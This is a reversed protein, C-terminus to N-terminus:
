ALGLQPAGDRWVQRVRPMGASADVAALDAAFGEGIEGRDDFGALRAPGRTVLNMADAWSASGDRILAYAAHLMSAPHYDSVMADVIGARIATRASLWALHSRGQWANPAGVVVGLGLRRAQAAAELTMPFESISAGVGAAAIVDAPTCDDHSALAIGAARAADAIRRRAATIDRARASRESALREREAPSGRHSCLYLEQWAASDHAYQGVGPAHVMYSVVRTSRSDLLHRPPEPLRASLEFRVHLYSDTRLVAQHELLARLWEVPHTADGWRTRDEDVTVCICRTTVGHSIAETDDQLLAADFPFRTGPRPRRRRDLGDCHLDVVGPILDLSRIDIVTGSRPGHRSVEVVVGDRITVFPRAVERGGVLARRANLTVITENM